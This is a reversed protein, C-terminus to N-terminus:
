YPRYYPREYFDHRREWEEHERAEYARYAHERWQEARWAEARREEWPDRRYGYGPEEYAPAYTQYVPAPAVYRPGGFQVGVGFQQAQAAPAMLTLAAGALALGGLKKLGAVKSFPLKASIGASVMTSVNSLKM